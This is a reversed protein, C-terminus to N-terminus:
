HHTVGTSIHVSIKNVKPFLMSYCANLQGLVTCCTAVSLIFAVIQMQIRMQHIKFTLIRMRCLCIKVLKTVERIFVIYLSLFVIFCLHTLSILYDVYFMVTIFSVLLLVLITYLEHLVNVTQKCLSCTLYSM